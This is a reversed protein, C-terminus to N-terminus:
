FLVQYGGHGYWEEVRFAFVICIGVHGSVDSSRDRLVCPASCITPLTIHRRRGASPTLELCLCLSASKGASKQHGRYVLPTENQTNAHQKQLAPLHYSSERTKKRESRLFYGYREALHGFDFLTRSRHTPNFM